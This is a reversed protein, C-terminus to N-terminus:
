VEMRRLHDDLTKPNCKLKDALQNTGVDVAFVKEAGNQLMCDTFEGTSAGIDACVKGALNINFVKLAKELKLGGRGVYKLFGRKDVHIEDSVCFKEGPKKLVKGGLSVYGKEIIEKANERSFGFNNKLIVDLRAKDCM